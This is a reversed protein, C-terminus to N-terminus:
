KIKNKHFVKRTMLKEWRKKKLNNRDYRRGCNDFDNSEEIVTDCNNKNESKM